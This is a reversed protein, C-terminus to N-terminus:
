ANSLHLIPTLSAFGKFVFAMASVFIFVSVRGYSIPSILRKERTQNKQVQQQLPLQFFPFAGTGLAYPMQGNWKNISQWQLYQPSQKM